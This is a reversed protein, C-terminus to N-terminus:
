PRSATALYHLFATRIERKNRERVLNISSPSKLNLKYFYNLYKIFNISNVLYFM